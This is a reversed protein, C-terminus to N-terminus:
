ICPSAELVPAPKGRAVGGRCERYGGDDGAAVRFVPPQRIYGVTNGPDQRQAPKRRLRVKGRVDEDARRHPVANAAEYYQFRVLAIADGGSGERLSYSAHFDADVEAGGVGGQGVDVFAFGFIAVKRGEVNELRRLQDGGPRTSARRM